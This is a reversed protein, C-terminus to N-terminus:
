GVLRNREGYIRLSQGYLDTRAISFMLVSALLRVIKMFHWYALLCRFYFHSGRRQLLGDILCNKRHTVIFKTRRHRTYIYLQGLFRDSKDRSVCMLQDTITPG